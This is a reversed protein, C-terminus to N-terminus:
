EIRKYVYVELGAKAKTCGLVQEPPLYIIERDDALIGALVIADIAPKAWAILNDPDHLHVRNATEFKYKLLIIISRLGIRKGGFTEIRYVGSIQQSSDRYSKVARAKVQWNGPRGNPHLSKPPLDLKIPPGISTGQVRFDIDPEDGM